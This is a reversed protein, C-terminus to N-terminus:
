VENFSLTATAVSALSQNLQQFRTQVVDHVAHTEAGRASFCALQHIVAGDFQVAVGGVDSGHQDLCAVDNRDAFLCLRLQTDTLREIQGSALAQRLPNVNVGALQGADELLGGVTGIDSAVDVLRHDDFQIRALRQLCYQQLM